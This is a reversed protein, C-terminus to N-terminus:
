FGLGGVGTARYTVLSPRFFWTDATANKYSQISVENVTYYPLHSLPGIRGVSPSSSDCESLGNTDNTYVRANSIQCTGCMARAPEPVNDTFRLRSSVLDLECYTTKRLVTCLLIRSCRPSRLISFLMSRGHIVLRSWMVIDRVRVAGTCTM